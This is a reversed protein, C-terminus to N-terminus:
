SKAVKLISDVLMDQPQQGPRSSNRPNMVRLTARVNQFLKALNKM